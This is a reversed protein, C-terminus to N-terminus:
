AAAQGSSGVGGDEQYSVLMIETAFFWKPRKYSDNDSIIGLKVLREINNQAAHYTVGLHQAAFPINIAPIDFLADVLRALLASSRASQVRQHYLRQLDQLAHAKQIANRSSWEVARLFFNVWRGWLGSKSVDYMTDIYEDYHKEFFPSVYLLPQSLVKRECLILPILLRGVRGNGDPFPHITEFQYHVLALQILLPLEDTQHIYKELEFLAEMAEKPPPPIFRANQILRAGIWNQDKKFEGPTLRAGRSPEVGEMLVTHLERILRISIPLTALLALGHELARSYNRVEKTDARAQESGAELLFLESFTTVTGEIKSSAVAEIRTFPKILLAPNRLARGIGSLEGLAQAARELPSAALALDIATPPLPNPVFAHCGQITPILRGSPSSRFDDPNM